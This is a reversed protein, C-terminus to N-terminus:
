NFDGIEAATGGMGRKANPHMFRCSNEYRCWGKTKWHCCVMDRRKAATIGPGVCASEAAATASQQPPQQQPMCTPSFDNPSVGQPSLVVRLHLSVAGTKADMEQDLLTVNTDALGQALPTSADCHLQVPVQVMVLRPFIVPPEPASECDMQFGQSFRGLSALPTPPLLSDATLLDGLGHPDPMVFSEDPTALFVSPDDSYCRPSDYLSPTQDGPAAMSPLRELGREINFTSATLTNEGSDHLEVDQHGGTTSSDADVETEEKSTQGESHQEGTSPSTTCTSETAQM